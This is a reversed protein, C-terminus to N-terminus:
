PEARTKGEPETAPAPGARNEKSKEPHLGDPNPTDKAPAKGPKPTAAPGSAPAKSKPQNMELLLSHADRYRPAEALADLLYRKAEAADDERLLRALRYRVEAPNEPRLLLLREFSDVAQGRHALAEDAVGLCYHPKRQFPNVALIRRANTEVEEWRKAELNLDLLRDYAGMADASRAALASLAAAEDGERNLERCAMAKLWYGNNEELYGPFLDILAQASDAAEAWRKMSLLSMTHTQRAWHNEPHKELYAALDSPNKLAQLEEGQPITWDVGKGLNQALQAAYHDFDAEVDEIPATNSSIADNILEGDGLDRLIGRFSEIGYTDILYKVVLMSQYYAFMLAEGSEPSIFASSLQGVPTLADEGLIMERYRPTMKQGWVENREMEEYVSIGESLWRPMKNKTVSLTVVHCFEHWLTAEWNQHGAALGGPSNMTVVAGFCAGLIGQGGLNGFTRIAFDQQEPFFEVLVPENLELGYKECLVKRAEVLIELARDGYIKVEDKPMQVLFEPTSIVEFNKIQDRLITLNHAVVNYPDAAAVEEALKWAEEEEGLRLLDLALQLKAPLFNPNMELAARQRAEGEAFRYNRSLVRGILHDIEPDQDWRELAKSRFNEFLKADAYALEGLVAQYAWGRPESPNFSFLMGLLEEADKYQESDIWYEARLLIGGIHKPNRELVRDVTEMAKQRDSPFYAEALGFRLDPDNPYAKLGARFEDAARSYDFKELALDGVALYVGVPPPDTEKHMRRAPEFYQKLVTQPDAGLALAAKGMAIWDSPTRDEKKLALAVDNFQLLIEDATEQDGLQDALDYVFMLGPLSKPYNALIEHAFEYAEQARGQAMMARVKMTRWELAPQGRQIAVSCIRECLEYEGTELVELVPPLNQEDFSRQYDAQGLALSGWMTMALPALVLAAPLAVISRPHPVIM